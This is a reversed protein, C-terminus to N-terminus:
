FDDDYGLEEKKERYHFSPLKLFPHKNNLIKLEDELIKLKKNFTEDNLLIKITRDEDQYYYGYSDKKVQRELDEIKEMLLHYRNFDREEELSAKRQKALIKKIELVIDKKLRDKALWGIKFDIDEFSIIKDSFKTLSWSSVQNEARRNHRIYYKFKPPKIFEELDKLFDEVKYEWRSRNTIPLNTEVEIRESKEKLNIEQILIVKVYYREKPVFNILNLGRNNKECREEIDRLKLYEKWVEQSNRNMM